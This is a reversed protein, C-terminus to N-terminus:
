EEGKSHNPEVFEGTELSYLKVKKGVVMEATKGFLEALGVALITSIVITDFAGGAGLNLPVVVGTGLSIIFQAVSALTLGLVSCIFANRRSRGMAYAVSGAILGYLFVNEVVISEPTESPLLYQVGLVAGATVITGVVARFLDWSWGARIMLYVCLGVPILFGGISFSFNDTIKIPPILIGIAIAIMIGIAWRDNLKLKDLIREGAGFMLLLIIASVLILSISM